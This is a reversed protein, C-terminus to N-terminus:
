SQVDRAAVFAVYAASYRRTYAIQLQEPKLNDRLAAERWADISDFTAKLNARLAILEATTKTM